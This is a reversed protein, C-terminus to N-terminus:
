DKIKVNLYLDSSIRHGNLHSELDNLSWQVVPAFFLIFPQDIFKSNLNNDVLNRRREVTVSSRAIVPIVRRNHRTM